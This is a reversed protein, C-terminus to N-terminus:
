NKSRYKDAYTSLNIQSKQILSLQKNFISSDIQKFSIETLKKFTEVDMWTLFCMSKNLIPNAYLSTQVILLHFKYQKYTNDFAFSVIKYYMKSTSYEDESYYCNGIYKKLEEKEM